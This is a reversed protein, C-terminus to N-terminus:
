NGSLANSIDQYTIYLLLIILASGIFVTGKEAIRRVLPRRGTITYALATVVRFGDLGPIPLLNIGAIALNIVVAMFAWGRFPEVKMAWTLMQAVGVPGVFDSIAVQRRIIMENASAVARIGDDVLDIGETMGLALLAIAFGLLLNGAPGYLDIVLKKRLTSSWYIEDDIEIGGGFPFPSLIIPIKRIEREWRWRKILPYGIHIAKVPLGQRITAWAHFFEHVSLFILLNVVAIAALM